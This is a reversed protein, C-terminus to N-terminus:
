LNYGREDHLALDLGVTEDEDSVRLGMVADVIKLLVWTIVGTYVITFAVGKVQVWVQGGITAEGPSWVGGLAPFAFVGTLIAGVIGGVAHVGFVDLSDDYGLKTKLKTCAWYCIAGAAIGIVIGHWPLVFGSAPTITGLGAIAGSIMGLVSPKGRDWWELLMWTLVGACAALHTALIAFGARGSATLASGGNFGFWGVWLLGTGIVALSLDFPALNDTGYGRRAGLLYCAVLGAIGANLHVVLGGAFDITGAAQLFGGGWVWHAIPVYV